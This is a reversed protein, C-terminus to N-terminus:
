NNWANVTMHYCRMNPTYQPNKLIDSGDGTLGRMIAAAVGASRSKGGDCHVIIEPTESHNQVFQCIAEADKKMMIGDGADNDEFALRLIHKVKNEASVFPAVSYPVSPTSISIIISPINHPKHCYNIADPLSLVTVNPIM